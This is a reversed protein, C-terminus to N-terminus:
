HEVCEADNKQSTIENLPVMVTIFSYLCTLASCAGYRQKLDKRLQPIFTGAPDLYGDQKHRCM